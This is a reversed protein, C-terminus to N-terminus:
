PCGLWISFLRTENLLAQMCPVIAVLLLCCFMRAVRFYARVQSKLYRRGPVAQYPRGERLNADVYFNDFDSFHPSTRFHDMTQKARTMTSTWIRTPKWPLTAIREVMMEAQEHGLHTLTRESDDKGDGHYQGHRILVIYRSHKSRKDKGGRRGDWNYDWKQLTSLDVYKDEMEESNDDLASPTAAEAAFVFNSNVSVFGAIGLASAFKLFTAGRNSGICSTHEKHRSFQRSVVLHRGRSQIVNAVAAFM